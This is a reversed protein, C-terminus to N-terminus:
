PVQLNLVVNGLTWWRQRDQALAVWDMGGGEMEQPDM